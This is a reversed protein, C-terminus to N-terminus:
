ANGEGDHKSNQIYLHKIKAMSEMAENLDDYIKLKVDDSVDQKEIVENLVGEIEVWSKTAQTLAVRIEDTPAPRIGAAPMGDLLARLTLGYIQMSKTLVATRDADGNGAWIECSAKALKQTLMEQRSVFDIVIANAQVLEAPNAYQGSLEATLASASALIAENETKIVHLADPNTPEEALTVTAEQMPAWQDRLAEIKTITKKRSEAGIINLEPNGYHLADLILAFQGKAQEMMEKSGDPNIGHTMHCASNAAQQSLTGLLAAADIREPASQQNVYQHSADAFSASAAIGCALATAAYLHIKM